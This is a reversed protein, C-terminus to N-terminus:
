CPKPRQQPLSFRCIIADEQPANYYNSRRGTEVFGCALYLARAPQNSSRVELIVAQAGRQFALELLGEVLLRGLGRRRFPWAVAMNEIEWEAELDHGVIFGQFLGDQELVLVARRDDAVLRRYVAENWHSAAAAEAETALMAAIDDPTAPRLRLV